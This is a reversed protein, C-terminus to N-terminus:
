STDGPVIALFFPPIAHSFENANAFLEHIDIM